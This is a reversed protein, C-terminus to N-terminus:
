EETLSGSTQEATYARGTFKSGCKPCVYIGASQRVVAVKSCYPCKQKNRYQAQIEAVRNRNKPGYRTGLGKNIVKTEAMTTFIPNGPNSGPDGPGLGPLIVLNGWM